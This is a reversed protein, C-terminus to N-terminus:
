DFLVSYASETGLPHACSNIYTLENAIRMNINDNTFGHDITFQSTEQFRYGFQQFTLRFEEPTILAVTFM